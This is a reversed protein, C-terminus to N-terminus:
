KNAWANVLAKYKAVSIGAGKSSGLYSDANGYGTNSVNAFGMVRYNRNILNLYHGAMKYGNTGEVAADYTATWTPSYKAPKLSHNKKVDYNWSKKESFWTDVPDLGMSQTAINELGISKFYHTHKLGGRKQYDANLMSAATLLPSVKLSRVGESRRARNVSNLYPLVAKINKASTADDNSHLDVYENYWSAKPKKGLRGTKLLKVASRASSRQGKTLSKNKSLYTMFDVANKAAKVPKSSLVTLSLTMMVASAGAILFRKKM